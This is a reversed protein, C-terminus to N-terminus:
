EIVKPVIYYGYKSFPAANMLQQQLSSESVVDERMMLNQGEIGILPKVNDTSVEDLMKIWEFIGEMDKQLKKAEDEKLTLRSLKAIKKVDEITITMLSAM